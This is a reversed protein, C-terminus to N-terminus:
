LPEGLRQIRGAATRAVLGRREFEALWGEMPWRNWRHHFLRANRVIDDVHEVPPSSVAHHQHYAHAGGVWRLGIGSARATAALDTDEGGYGTYGEFFGGLRAWTPATVAFSLSWFLDYNSGSEVAGVAPNPRAGHPNTHAILEEESWREPHPPLYTVPGCLLSMTNASDTCAREYTAAMEPGPICDVDLFLLIDAGQTVAVQAGLNRAHALPLRGDVTDIYRVTATGTDAVVDAVVDVIRHDGMAIVVHRDPPRTSRALGRIQERLHEHRGSVVTVVTLNM